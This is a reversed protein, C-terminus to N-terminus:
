PSINALLIRLSELALGLRQGVQAMDDKGSLTQAGENVINEVKGLDLGAPRFQVGLVEIDAVYKVFEDPDRLRQRALLVVLQHPSVRVLAHSHHGIAQFEM